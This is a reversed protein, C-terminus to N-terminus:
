CPSFLPPFSKGRPGRMVKAPTATLVVYSYYCFGASGDLGLRPEIPM